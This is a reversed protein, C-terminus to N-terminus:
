CLSLQNWTAERVLLRYNAMTDCHCSSLTAFVADSNNLGHALKACFKACNQSTLNPAIRSFACNQDRWLTSVSLTQELIALYNLLIASLKMGCFFQRRVSIALVFFFRNCNQDSDLIAGDRGSHPILLNFNNWMHPVILGSLVEKLVRLKAGNEFPISRTM